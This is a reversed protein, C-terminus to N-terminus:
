LSKYISEKKIFFYIYKIIYWLHTYVKYLFNKNLDIYKKGKFCGAAYGLVNEQPIIELYKCNDGCIIYEKERVSIVRHLIFQNGKKYFAINFKKLKNEANKILVLERKDNFFPKMSNGFFHAIFYGDKKLIQEYSAFKNM